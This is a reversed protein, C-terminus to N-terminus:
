AVSSLQFQRLSPSANPVDMHRVGQPAAEGHLDAIRGIQRVRPPEGGRESTDGSKPAANFIMQKSVPPSLPIRVGSARNLRKCVKWAHEKLWESVEGNGDRGRCGAANLVRLELRGARTPCPVRKM